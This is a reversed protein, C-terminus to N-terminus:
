IKVSKQHSPRTQRSVFLAMPLIQKILLKGLVNKGRLVSVGLFLRNSAAEPRTGCPEEMETVEPSGVRPFLWQIIEAIKHYNHEAQLNHFYFVLEVWGCPCYAFNIMEIKEWLKVPFINNVLLLGIIKEMVFYSFCFGWFHLVKDM